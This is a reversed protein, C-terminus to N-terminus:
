REVANNATILDMKYASENRLAIFETPLSEARPILVLLLQTERDGYEWIVHRPYLKRYKEINFSRNKFGTLILDYDQRDKGSKAMAEKLGHPLNLDDIQGKKIVQAGMEQRGGDRSFYVLTGIVALIIAIATFIELWSFNKPPIEHRYRNKKM